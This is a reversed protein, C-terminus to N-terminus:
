ETPNELIYQVTPTDLHELAHSSYILDFSKAAFPFPRGTGLEFPRPNLPGPASDLNAWLPYLFSPGGGINLFPTPFQAHLNILEEARFNAPHRQRNVFRAAQVLDGERIALETLKAAIEENFPHLQYQIIARTRARDRNPFLRALM